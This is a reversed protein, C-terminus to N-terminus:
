KSLKLKHSAERKSLGKEKASSMKIAEDLKCKIEVKGIAFQSSQGGFKQEDFRQQKHM